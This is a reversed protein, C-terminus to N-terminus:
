AFFSFGKRSYPVAKSFKKLSSSESIFINRTKVPRARSYIITKAEYLSM